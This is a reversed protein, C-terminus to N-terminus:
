HLFLIHSFHESFEKFNSSMLKFAVLVQFYLLFQGSQLLGLVLLLYVKIGIQFEPTPAIIDM